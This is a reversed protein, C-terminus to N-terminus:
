HTEGGGAVAGFQEGTGVPGADEGVVPQGIAVLVVHPDVELGRDVEVLVLDVVDGNRRVRQGEGDPVGVAVRDGVADQLEVEAGGVGGGVVSEGVEAGVGIQVGVAVEGGREDGAGADLL